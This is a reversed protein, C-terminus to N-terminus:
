PCTPSPYSPPISAGGPMTYGPPGWGRLLPPFNVPAQYAPSSPALSYCGSLQPDVVLPNTDGTDGGTTIPSGAYNYYINNEIVPYAPLPPSLDGYYGGGGGSVIINGSYRNGTMVNCNPNASTQLTTIVHGYTGLDVINGMYVDNKGGHIFTTNDGNKGTIVNGTVTANSLCDDLYIASGTDMGFWPNGDRIFNGTIVINTSMATNDQTYLAGCDGGDDPSTCTNYVFNGSYILNSVSGSQASVINAGGGTIDHMVNNLVSWSVCYQGCAVGQAGYQATSYGNYIINNKITINSSNVGGFGWGDFNRVTLGDFTVNSSGAVSLVTGPGVGSGTSGGEIIASDVGDPPYYSWTEGNDTNGLNLMCDCSTDTTPTYVGARLYTTMTTGGSAEMAQQAKPLSAWPAALSGDGTTDNGTPSVYFANALSVGTGTVTSTCDNNIALMASRSGTASPSFVVRVYCKDGAPLSAPCDTQESFDAADPGSIGLSSIALAAGGTNMVTFLSTTTAEGLTEAGFSLTTPSVTVNALSSGVACSADDLTGADTGPLPAQCTSADVGSPQPPAQGSCTPEPSTTANGQIAASATTGPANADAATIEYWYQWFPQVSSDTYSTAGAPLTALTVYSDTGCFTKRSVTITVGPAGAWTLAISTTSSSSVAFDAIAICAAPMVPPAAGDHGLDLTASDSMTAAADPAAAGSGRATGCAVALAACAVLFGQTLPPPSRVDM